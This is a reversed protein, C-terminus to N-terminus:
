QGYYIRVTAHLTNCCKTNRPLGRLALEVVL